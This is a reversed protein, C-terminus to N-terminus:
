CFPPTASWHPPPPAVGAGPQQLSFKFPFGRKAGGLAAGSRLPPFSLPDLTFSAICHLSFSPSPGKAFPLFAFIISSPRAQSCASRFWHGGGGGPDVGQRTGCSAHQVRCTGRRSRSRMRAGERAIGGNQGKGLVRVCACTYARVCARVCARRPQRLQHLRPPSPPAHRAHIVPMYAAWSHWGRSPSQGICGRHRRPGACAVRISARARLGALKRHTPPRSHNPPQTSHSM